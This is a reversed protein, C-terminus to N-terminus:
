RRDGVRATSEIIGTGGAGNASVPIANVLAAREVRLVVTLRHQFTIIRSASITLASIAPSVALAGEPGFGPLDLAKDVRIPLVVAPLSQAIQPLARDVMNQLISAATSGLANPVGVPSSVDARDLRIRANLVHSSDTRFDDIGGHLQLQAAARPFTIRTATGRLVVRASNAVFALTLSDLQVDVDGPINVRVPLSAQLLARMLTDTVSVVVEDPRQVLGRRLVDDLARYGAIERSLQARETLLERVNQDSRCGALLLLVACPASMSRARRPPM